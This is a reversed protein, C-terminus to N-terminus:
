KQYQLVLMDGCCLILDFVKENNKVFSEDYDVLYQSLAIPINDLLNDIAMEILTNRTIKRNSYKSLETTANDLKEITAPKLFLAVQKKDRENKPELLKLIEPVITNNKNYEM